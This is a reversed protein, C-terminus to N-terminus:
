ISMNMVREFAELFKDRVTVMTQLNNKAENTTMLLDTFSAENILSKRVTNEQATVKKRLDGIISEAIGSNSNVVSSAITGNERANNIHNLIQDPTMKSLNNFEVNVMNHFSSTDKINNLEPTMPQNHVRTYATQAVLLSVNDISM